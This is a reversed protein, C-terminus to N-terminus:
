PLLAVSEGTQIYYARQLFAFTHDNKGALSDAHRQMCSSFYAEKDNVRVSGNEVEAICALANEAYWERAKQMSEASLEVNNFRAM